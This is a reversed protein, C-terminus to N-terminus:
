GRDDRPRASRGHDDRTRASGWGIDDRPRACLAPSPDWCSSAGSIGRRRSPIVILSAQFSPPPLPISTAPPGVRHPADGGTMALGRPAGKTMGLGRRVGDLTMGLGRRARALSRPADTRHSEEGAARFSLPFPESHCHSLSPIVSAIRARIVFVIRSLTVSVIRSPMVFFLQSPVVFSFRGPIGRPPRCRAGTARSRPQLRGARAGCQAAVAARRLALWGFPELLVSCVDRLLYGVNALHLAGPRLRRRSTVMVGRHWDHEIRSVLNGPTPCLGEVVPAGPANAPHAVLVNVEDCDFPSISTWEEEGNGEGTQQPAIGFRVADLAREQGLPLDIPALDDTTAFAISSLDARRTLRAAPLPAAVPGDNM